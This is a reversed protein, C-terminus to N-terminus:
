SKIKFYPDPVDEIISKPLVGRTVMEDGHIMGCVNWGHAALHDETEEKEMWVYLHRTASDWQWMVPMGKEWNRFGHAEGGSQYHISVRRLWNPYIMDYRIGHVLDKHPNPFWIEGTEELSMMQMVAWASESLHDWANLDRNGELWSYMAGFALNYFYTMSGKETSAKIYDVADGNNNKIATIDTCFQAIRHIAVAPVLDMRGKKENMDRHAGTDHVRRKDSTRKIIKTEAM